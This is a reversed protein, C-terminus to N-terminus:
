QSAYTIGFVFAKHHAWTLLPSHQLVDPLLLEKINNKKKAACSFLLELNQESNFNPILDATM